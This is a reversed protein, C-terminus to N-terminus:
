RGHTSLVPPPPPDPLSGSFVVLLRLGGLLCVSQHLRRAHLLHLCTENGPDRQGAGGSVLEM